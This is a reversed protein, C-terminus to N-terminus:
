NGADVEISSINMVKHLGKISHRLIEAVKCVKISSNGAGRLVVTDFPDERLLM